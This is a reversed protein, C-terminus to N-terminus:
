IAIHSLLRNCQKRCCLSYEGQPTSTHGPNLCTQTLFTVTLDESRSAYLRTFGCPRLYQVM